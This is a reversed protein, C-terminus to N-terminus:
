KSFSMKIPEWYKCQYKYSERQYGIYMSLILCNNMSLKLVASTRSNISGFSVIGIGFIYKLKHEECVYLCVVYKSM